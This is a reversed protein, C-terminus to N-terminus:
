FDPTEEAAPAPAADMDPLVDAVAEPESEMVIPEPKNEEPISIPQQNADSVFETERNYGESKDDDAIANSVEISMVGYKSILSKLVTKTAMADFNSHWPSDAKSWAKSFKKAHETVREVDWYVSKEFGSLLKFYAFYGIVKGTPRGTISLEGSVYDHVVEQGEYVCDANIYKYQNSRQALQILGRVSIQFQPISRGSKDRYPIVYAFGLSKVIPLKLAAAKMCEQVVANPECVTLTSDGSYLDLMSALFAGAQDGLMNRMRANLEKNSILNKMSSINVAMATRANPNTNIAM